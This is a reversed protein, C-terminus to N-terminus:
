EEGEKKALAAGLALLGIVFAIAGLIARSREEEEKRVAKERLYYATRNIADVPDYRRFPIYEMGELFGKPKVLGEEVVPVILKGAKRAYGIEQHVFESRNGDVTLFALLCDSNDIERAIKDPLQIGPEPYFEAVYAWIGNQCLWRYLEWVIGMDTTSHSIFVKFAV